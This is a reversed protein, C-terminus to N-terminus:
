LRKLHLSCFLLFLDRSQRRKDHPSLVIFIIKLIIYILHSINCLFVTAFPDHLGPARPHSDVIPTRTPNASVAPSCLHLLRQRRSVLFFNEASLSLVTQRSLRLSIFPLCPQPGPNAYLLAGLLREGCLGLSARASLYGQGCFGSAGWFPREPGKAGRWGM